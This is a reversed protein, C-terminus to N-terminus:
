ATLLRKSAIAAQRFMEISKAQRLRKCYVESAEQHRAITKERVQMFFRESGARRL